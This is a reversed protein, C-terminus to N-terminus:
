PGEYHCRSFSCAKRNGECALDFDKYIFRESRELNAPYPAGKWFPPDVLMRTKALAPTLPDKLNFAVLSPRITDPGSQSGHRSPWVQKLNLLIDVVDEQVGEISTYEHLVGEIEAETIAAGPMSSLLIRRLANGLTHGFGREFPEITVKAQLDNVPTVKVLRPKLFEHVSEQM